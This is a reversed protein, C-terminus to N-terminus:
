LRPGKTVQLTPAWLLVLGEGTINSLGLDGFSLVVWTPKTEGPALCMKKALHRKGPHGVFRIGKPVSIKVYVQLPKIHEHHKSDSAEWCM